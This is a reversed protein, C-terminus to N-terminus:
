SLFDRFFGPRNMPVRTGVFVWAGSVIDPHREVANCSEWDAMYDNRRRTAQRFIGSM